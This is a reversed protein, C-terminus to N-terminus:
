ARHGAERNRNTLRALETARLGNVGYIEFACRWTIFEEESMQYRRCAEELSIIGSLVAAVVAAKRRAVWRQTNPPPLETVSLIRAM